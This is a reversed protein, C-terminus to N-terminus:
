QTVAARALSRSGSATENAWRCQCASSSWVLSGSQEELSGEEGGAKGHEPVHVLTMDIGRARGPCEWHSITSAILM